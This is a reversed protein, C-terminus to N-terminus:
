PLKDVSNGIILLLLLSIAFMSVLPISCLKTHLIAFSIYNILALLRAFFLRYNSFKQKM